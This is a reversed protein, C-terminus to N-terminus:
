DGGEILWVRGEQVWVSIIGCKVLASESARLWCGGNVGMEDGGKIGSSLCFLRQADHEAPVFASTSCAYYGLLHKWHHQDLTTISNENTLWTHWSHASFTFNCYQLTLVCFKIQATNRKIPFSIWTKRTKLILAKQEQVQQVPMILVFLFGRKSTTIKADYVNTSDQVALIINYGFEAPVLGSVTNFSWIM